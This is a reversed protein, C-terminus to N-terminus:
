VLDFHIKITNICSLYEKAFKNNGHKEKVRTEFESLTGYFHGTDYFSDCRVCIGNGDTKFATISRNNLYDNDDSVRADGCVHAYSYVHADGHVRADSFVYADGFVHANGFVCANDFAGADGYICANDYIHADGCICAKGFVYANDYVHANGLVWANDSVRANGYIRANDYVWANDFVWCDDEHSLNDEKEIWGGLDGAEVNGFNKIARIRHLIVGGFKKFEGTFEYKKEM